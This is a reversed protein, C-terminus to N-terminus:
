QVTRRGGGQVGRAAEYLVGTFLYIGYHLALELVEACQIISIYLIICICYLCALM